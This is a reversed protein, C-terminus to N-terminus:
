PGAWAPNGELLCTHSPSMCHSLSSSTPHISVTYIFRMRSTTRMSASQKNSSALVAVPVLTPPPMNVLWRDTEPPVCHDTLISNEILVIATMDLMIILHVGATEM